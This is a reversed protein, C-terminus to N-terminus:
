RHERASGPRRAIILETKETTEFRGSPEIEWLRRAFDARFEPLADGLLAPSAYSTSLQLGIVDDVDMVRTTSLRVHEISRFASEALVEEHAKKPHSYTGSGARRRPGLFKQVVDQAVEVWAGLVAAKQSWISAAGSLLAVGGQPDVMDDLASLLAPRDTWHFSAGMACLRLPPLGLDGITADDGLLWRIGRAQAEYEARLGAALMEPNPDVAFVRAGSAALPLALQGPGSGLDLVSTTRDLGFGKVLLRIAEAPYPPRHRAYYTATGDFLEAHEGRQDPM